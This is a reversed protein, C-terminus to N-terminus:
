VEQYLKAAALAQRGYRGVAFPINDNVFDQVLGVSSTNFETGAYSIVIEGTAINQYVRTSFGTVANLGSDMHDYKPIVRWGPPIPADNSVLGRADRYANASLLAYEFDQTM